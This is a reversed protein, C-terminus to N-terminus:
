PFAPDRTPLISTPSSRRLEEGLKGIFKRCVNSLNGEVSSTQRVLGVGAYFYIVHLVDMEPLGTYKIVQHVTRCGDLASLVSQHTPEVSDYQAGDALHFIADYDPISKHLIEWVQDAQKFLYLVQDTSFRTRAVEEPGIDPVFQAMVAKHKAISRIAQVGVLTDCEAHYVCGARLYLNAKFGYGGHIVLMGTQGDNVLSLLTDQLPKYKPAMNTDM